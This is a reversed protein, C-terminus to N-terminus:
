NGGRGRRGENVVETIRETLDALKADAEEQTLDGEAVEEALHDTAEAVMADIVTQLDVGKAEAVEAITQGDHLADHLEDETVGLASAAVDLGPGRGGMGPGGRGGHDGRGGAPLTADVLEAIRDPLEARMEDLRTEAASVLADILAQRDVGQAEAVDALTKGEELQTRLDDESLGLTEAAVSLDLGGRHGRGEHGASDEASQTTAETNDQAGSAFPTGITAGILTGGAIAATMAAAALTKTTPM